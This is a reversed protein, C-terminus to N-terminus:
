CTFSRTHAELSILLEPFGASQCVVSCWAVHAHANSSSLNRASSVAYIAAGLIYLVGQTVVWSLGMQKELQASGYLQLGHVVPIVASLGMAAFM